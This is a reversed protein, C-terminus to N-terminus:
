SERVFGIGSTLLSCYANVQSEQVDYCLGFPQFLSYILDKDADATNLSSSFVSIPFYDNSFNKAHGKVKHMIMGTIGLSVQLAVNPVIRIAKFQYVHNNIGSFSFSRKIKDIFRDLTYGAMISIHLCGDKLPKGALDKVTADVLTPFAQPKVAWIV